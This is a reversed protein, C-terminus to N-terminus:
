VHVKPDGKVKRVRRGTEALREERYTQKHKAEAGQKRRREVDVSGKRGTGM